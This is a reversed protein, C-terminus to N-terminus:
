HGTIGYKKLKYQLLSKSIGLLEAAKVQVFEARVLARRILAAEIKELTDALDLRVPLLDVASKLQSEEDRIEPPLDDVGVTDSAVLVLCREVVNQLQRINGPWEYGTLYDHAEPTFTKPRMGNDRALKEVFHGVLLPIDERRERLPPLAVHVVNLRYYLDERFTGNEVEKQLDKNTAAVVRIDVEIEDGGGVREFRREQLVRLLKVQLEPTLEGIEDLFLTGGDAQEFRGRRMAMAGTFSGKEHGFLESELVGPNLAMCNVSVFPGSNRPSSFHIARAVLEKGTGSEGTILVTSRSPAARDVMDLVERIAKSRGIIQHTGYREELNARLARYQRHVRSLEAANQVSLLLEDNSFPKTIYDFAGYKMVDVAGEISGFATMICVPIHPWTKKVRELVERGTVRPMKMDTIVVDVESEELFALATEPDNLATVAYGADTLLAELVLLYNKEDDIVLIHTTESM